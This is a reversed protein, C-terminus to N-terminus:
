FTKCFPSIDCTEITPEKQTGGLEHALGIFWVIAMLLGLCALVLGIWGKARPGPGPSTITRVAGFFSVLAPVVALWALDPITGIAVAIAGSIIGPRRGEGREVTM